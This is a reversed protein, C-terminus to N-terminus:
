PLKINLKSDALGRFGQIGCKAGAVACGYTIAELLSQGKSLGFITAANFTDGAGCTDVVADPPFASCSVIGTEDSNAAAGEEGWACIVVGGEKLKPLYGNVAETMTQYGQSKAFDKSVFLIDPLDWVNYQELGSALRLKEAELSTIIHKYGKDMRKKDENHKKIHSLMKAIECANDRGEFHIWQVTQLTLDISHQFNDLSLEPLNKNTHLITRTKTDQSIIVVSLPCTTNPIIVSKEFKINYDQFDQQIFSLERDDSLTGFFEANGGLSSFVTASNSANGGRQWYCDLCRHGLDETPFYPLVNFLDVCVLGVFLVRQEQGIKFRNEM